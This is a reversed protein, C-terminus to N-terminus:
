TAKNTNYCLRRDFAQELLIYESFVGALSRKPVAWGTEKFVGVYLANM